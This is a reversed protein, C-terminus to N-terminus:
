TSKKGKPPQVAPRIYIPKIERYDQMKTSAQASWEALALALNPLDLTNEQSHHAYTPIGNLKHMWTEAPYERPEITYHFEGNQYQGIAGYYKKQRIDLLVGQEETKSRLAFLAAEIYNLSTIPTEFLHSLTKAIVLGSRLGTYNGPGAIVGIADLDSAKRQVEDFLTHLISPLHEMKKLSTSITTLPIGKELLCIEINPSSTNLGLTLM